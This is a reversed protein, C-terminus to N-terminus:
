GGEYMIRWDQGDKRLYLRKSIDGNYNNSEYKQRFRAVVIAQQQKRSPYAFLAIDSLRIRQYTKAKALYRKRAAWSDRSYRGSWFKSDYHSLYKDVDMSEWDRRWQELASLIERRQQQWQNRDLWDAEETIIVPTRGPTIDKMLGSLDINPLVVCGESDLPPRSYFGPDTGHLWIGNGTKGLKRDLENPYNVPFAGIGYKDPLKEDPIWSTVFYVGEPTRLDGQTQKNGRQKGTSVYYDRILRPPETESTRGYVFLRNYKKEVLIATEITKGLGLLQLPVKNGLQVEVMAKLRAEAEARLLQLKDHGQKGFDRMLPSEGIDSVQGYRSLLMDGRVLHALHFDPARQTLRDIEEMALQTAGTNFYLMAKFLSAEYDQKNTSIRHDLQEFLHQLHQKSMNPDDLVGQAKTIPSDQNNSAYIVVSVSLVLATALLGKQWIGLRM